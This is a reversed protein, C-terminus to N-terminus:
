KPHLLRPNTVIAVIDALLNLLIYTAAFILACAQAVPMDRSSVSDVMLQGIGPYTFVVEVVVVGVVLYALNFAIVTAIPAWANPLAHKLIVQRPSLGKLKAMEIYPSSLLAIISARTMRMMHAVIVLTLTLAPLTAKYLHEGFPTSASVTSLPPFWRLKVAFFFVLIYAVFFEPSAITTLTTANAIRDFWSNRYLACLLGLALAIPVAIIATMAALFFTNYLRPGIIGSVLRVNEQRWGGAGAFSKGFDGQLAGSVWEFYRTVPPRDLGLSHNFNAVAEPTAGQGLIAEAFGGPLMELSSFIIVSVALLTLLGLGLRQLVTRLVPHM